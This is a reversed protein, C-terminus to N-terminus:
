LLLGIVIGMAIGYLYQKNKKCEYIFWVIFDMIIEM